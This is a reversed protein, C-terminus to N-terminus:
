PWPGLTLLRLTPAGVDLAAALDVEATFSWAGDGAPDALQQRIVWRTPEETLTFWRTSRADADIGISDHEAWYPAQGSEPDYRRIRLKFEAM